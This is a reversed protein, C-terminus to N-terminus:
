ALPKKTQPTPVFLIAANIMFAALILLPGTTPSLFLATLKGALALTGGTLMAWSIRRQSFKKGLLGAVAPILFAGSFFSFALLLVEIISTFFLAITTSLIGFIGIWLRTFAISASDKLNQFLGNFITASTLLTTDASSLVASLLGLVMVVFAWPPLLFQLTQILSQLTRAGASPFLAQSFIGIMTLLIGVPILLAATLLVSHTATREDRACFLRSYIDPGVLFTSAYTLLLIGLDLPMFHANFPFTNLPTHAFPAALTKAAFFATTILGALILLAQWFDTKLISLQGGLLTYGIFITGCCVCGAPYSLPTVANLIKGGGIIQAAIVGTWAIPIMISSIRFAQPGFFKGFLEPLTFQGYRRVYKSLPVLAFLGLSASLMLWVAAWGIKFSLSITGLIASSGLITALLSATTIWLSNSGGAIYFQSPNKTKASVKFGILLLLIFFGLIWLTMCSVTSFFRSFHM